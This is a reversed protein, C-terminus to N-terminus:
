LVEVLRAKLSRLLGNSRLQCPTGMFREPTPVTAASPILESKSKPEAPLTNAASAVGVGLGDVLPAGAGLALACGEGDAVGPPFFSGAARSASLAWRSAILAEARAAISFARLSKRLTRAVLGVGSARAAATAARFAATSLALAARMEAICASMGPQVGCACSCDLGAYTVPM